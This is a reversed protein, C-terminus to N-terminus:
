RTGWIREVWEPRDIFPNRNGQYRYGINNRHIEHASVPDQKHWKLLLKIFWEKYVQDKTGNLMKHSFTQIKHEYRTAFYLLARAIDGKFEDIPEFAKGDYGPVTNMGLKSGNRSTWTPHDVEGFPHNSRKGNVYGDSPYVHFFDSRMPAAKHFSSQPFIHERNFCDSEGKYSGCKKNRSEFNYPDYTNPRESYMDVISGDNDYTRDADSSFYVNILAGYGKDRHTQELKKNLATKLMYGSLGQASKYYTKQIENVETEENVETPIAMATQASLSFSIIVILKTLIDM